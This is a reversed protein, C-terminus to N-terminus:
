PPGNCGGPIRMASANVDTRCDSSRLTCAFFPPGRFAQQLPQCPADVPSQGGDGGTQLGNLVFNEHHFRNVVREIGGAPVARRAFRPEAGQAILQLRTGVFPLLLHGLYHAAKLGPEKGPAIRDFQWAIIEIQFAPEPIRLPVLSPDVAMMVGPHPDHLFAARQDMGQVGVQPMRFWQGGGVQKGISMGHRGDALELGEGSAFEHTAGAGRFM